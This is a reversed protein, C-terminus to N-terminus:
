VKEIGKGLKWEHVLAKEQGMLVKALGGEGEWASKVMPLDSAKAWNDPSPM